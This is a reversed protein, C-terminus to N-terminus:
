FKKMKKKKENKEMKKMCEDTFGLIKFGIKLLIM